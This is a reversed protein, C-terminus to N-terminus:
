CCDIAVTGLEEDSGDNGAPEIALMNDKTLNGVSISSRHLHDLRNFSATALRAGDLVLITSWSDSLRALSSHSTSKPM